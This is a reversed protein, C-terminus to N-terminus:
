ERFSGFDGYMAGAGDTTTGDATPQGVMWRRADEIQKQILEQSYQITRGNTSVMACGRNVIFRCAVVFAKAMAVDGVEDYSANDEYAARVDDDSSASTLASMAYMVVAM